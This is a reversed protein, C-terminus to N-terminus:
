LMLVYGGVIRHENKVKDSDKHTASAKKEQTKKGAKSQEQAPQNRVNVNKEM